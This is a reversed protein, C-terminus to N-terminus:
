GNGYLLKRAKEQIDLFEPDELRSFDSQSLKRAMMTQFETFVHGQILFLIGQIYKILWNGLLNILLLVGIWWM